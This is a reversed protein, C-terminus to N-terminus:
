EVAVRQDVAYRNKLGCVNKRVMTCVYRTAAFRPTTLPRTQSTQKTKQREFYIHREENKQSQTQKNEHTSPHETECSRRACRGQKVRSSVQKRPTKPAHTDHGPYNLKTTHLRNHQQVRRGTKGKLPPQEAKSRTCASPSHATAGNM